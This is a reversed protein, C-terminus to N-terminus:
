LAGEVRARFFNVVDTQTEDPHKDIYAFVMIHYSKSMAKEGSTKHQQCSKSGSGETTNGQAETRVSCAESVTPVKSRDGHLHPLPLLKFIEMRHALSWEMLKEPDVSPWLPVLVVTCAHM